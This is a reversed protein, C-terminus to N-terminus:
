NFILYNLKDKTKKLAVSFVIAISVPIGILNEGDKSHHFPKYNKTYKFLFPVIKTIKNIYYISIIIFIIEIITKVLITFYQENFNLEFTYKNIIKGFLITILATISGHQSLHLLKQFRIHSIEFLSKLHTIDFIM